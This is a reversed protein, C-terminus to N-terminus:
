SQQLREVLADGGHKAALRSSEWVTGVCNRVVRVGDAQALLSVVTPVSLRVDLVLEHAGIASSGSANNSPAQPPPEEELLSTATSLGGVM